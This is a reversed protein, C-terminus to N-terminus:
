EESPLPPAKFDESNGLALVAKKLAERTHDMQAERAERNANRDAAQQRAKELSIDAETAPTIVDINSDSFVGDFTIHIVIDAQEILHRDHRSTTELTVTSEREDLVVVRSLIYGM